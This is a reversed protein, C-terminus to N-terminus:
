ITKLNVLKKVDNPAEIAPPSEIVSYSKYAECFEKVWWKLESELVTSAWEYYPWRNKMLKLAIPDEIKPFIHSGHTRLHSIINNAIVLAKDEIKSKQGEIAEIFEAVPPMKTYKRILIIQKAASEVQDISYNKLMDFRMVMGEKTINDRFNDAMGLMIQVFRKENSKNM